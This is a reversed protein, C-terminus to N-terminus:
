STVEWDEALIDTQSASWPMEPTQVYLFRRVKTLDIALFKGRTWAQRRVSLGRHMSELAEGFNM